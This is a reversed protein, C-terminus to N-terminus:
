QGDGVKELIKKPAEKILEKAPETIDKPIVKEGEMKEADIMKEAKEADIKEPEIKEQVIVQGEASMKDANIKESDMKEADGTEGDMKEMSVEETTMVEAAAAQPKPLPNDSATRLYEIIAARKEPKREGNFSMITGKVLKRPKTLYADLTEYDWTLGSTSMSSSYKFGTKSAASAGVINWLNPGIKDKGGKDVGHCQTCAKFATPGKTADMAAVWDAQPFPLPKAEEAGGEQAISGVQYIPTAPASSHMLLHPVERIMMVGLATALIAGAIKNFGLEDM